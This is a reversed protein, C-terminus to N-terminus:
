RPVGAARAMCEGGADFFGPKIRSFLASSLLACNSFCATMEAAVDKMFLTGFIEECSLDLEERESSIERFFSADAASLKARTCIANHL